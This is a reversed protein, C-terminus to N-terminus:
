RGVWEAVQAAVQNAAQNLAPRASAADVAAIPVRAEFRRTEVTDPTRAVAADYVVVAANADADIGFQSLQGTVRVGPDFAFQRADLVVRGTRAAITESLLRGFLAAPPEVWAADKLYAITGSSRVPVRTVRLEQPVAPMAVTVAQGAPASRPAGAEVRADPTLTFLSDPTKPGFSFCGALLLASLPVLAARM